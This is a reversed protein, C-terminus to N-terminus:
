PQEIVLFPISSAIHRCVGLSCTATSTGSSADKGTPRFAGGWIGRLFATRRARGAALNVTEAPRAEKRSLQERVLIEVPELIINHLLVTKVVAVQM